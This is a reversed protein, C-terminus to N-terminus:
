LVLTHLLFSFLHSMSFSACCAFPSSKPPPCLPSPLARVRRMMPPYDFLEVVEREFLAPLPAYQPLSGIFAAWKSKAGKARERLLWAALVSAATWPKEKRTVNYPLQKGEGEALGDATQQLAAPVVLAAAGAAIPQQAVLM